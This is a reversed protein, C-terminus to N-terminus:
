LLKRAKGSVYRRLLYGIVSILLCAFFSGQGAALLREKPVDSSILPVLAMAMPMAVALIAFLVFFVHAILWWEALQEIRKRIADYEPHTFATIKM